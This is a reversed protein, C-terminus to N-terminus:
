RFTFDIPQQAFLDLEQHAAAGVAKQTMQLSMPQPQDLVNCLLALCVTARQAKLESVLAPPTCDSGHCCGRSNIEFPWSCRCVSDLCSWCRERRTAPSYKEVHLPLCYKRYFITSERRTTPRVYKRSQQQKLVKVVRERLKGALAELREFPSPRMTTLLFECGVWEAARSGEM